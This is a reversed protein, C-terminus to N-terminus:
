ALCQGGHAFVTLAPGESYFAFRSPSNSACLSSTPSATASYSARSRRRRAAMRYASSGRALAAPLPRLELHPLLSPLPPACRLFFIVLDFVMTYITTAAVFRTSSKVVACGVGPQFVATM